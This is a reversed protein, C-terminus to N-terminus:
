PASLRGDRTSPSPAPLHTLGEAGDEFLEQAGGPLCLWLCIVASTAASISAQGRPSPAWLLSHSVPGLPELSPEGRSPSILAPHLPILLLAGPHPACVGPLPFLPYLAHVHRLPCESGYLLPPPPHLAKGMRGSSNPRLWIM